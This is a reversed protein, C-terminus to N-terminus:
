RRVHSLLSLIESVRGLTLCGYIVFLSLLLTWHWVGGSLGFFDRMTSWQVSRV